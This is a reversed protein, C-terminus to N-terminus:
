SGYGLITLLCKVNISITSVRYQGEWDFTRKVNFLYQDYTSADEDEATDSLKYQHTKTDWLQDVRKFDLKSAAKGKEKDKKRSM